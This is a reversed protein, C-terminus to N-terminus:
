NGYVVDGQILREELEGLCVNAAAFMKLIQKPVDRLDYDYDAAFVQM